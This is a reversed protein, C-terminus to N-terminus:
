AGRRRFGQVAAAFMLMVATAPESVAAQYSSAGAAGTGSGTPDGFHTRWANYGAPTGDTKRWVVYDAAAVTGDNNFDGSLTLTLSTLSSSTVVSNPPLLTM